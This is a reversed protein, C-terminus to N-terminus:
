FPLEDEPLPAAPSATSPKPAPRSGKLKKLPPAKIDPVEKIPCLFAVEIGVQVNGTKDLYEVERLCGGVLAKVLKSSDFQLDRSVVGKLREPSNSEQFAKLMGKFYPLSEGNVRQFFKKPFKAFAGAHEGEVIDLSLTVMADGANSPNDSAAVVQFVYGGPPPPDYQGGTAAETTTFEQDLQIM